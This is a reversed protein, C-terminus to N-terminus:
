SFVLFFFRLYFLLLFLSLRGFKIKYLYSVYVTTM